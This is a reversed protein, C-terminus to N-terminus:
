RTQLFSRADINFRKNRDIFENENLIWLGVAIGPPAFQREVLYYGNSLKIYGSGLDHFEGDNDYCLFFDTITQGVIKEKTDNSVADGSDFRDKYYDAAPQYTADEFMPIDIIVNGALKVYSHYQSLGWEDDEYTYHSRVELIEKGILSLLTLIEMSYNSTKCAIRKLSSILSAGRVQALLGEEQQPWKL